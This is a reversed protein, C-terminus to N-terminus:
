SVTYHCYFLPSRSGKKNGGNASLEHSMAVYDFTEPKFGKSTDGTIAKRTSKVICNKSHELVPRLPPIASAGSEFDPPVKYQAPELGAEPM